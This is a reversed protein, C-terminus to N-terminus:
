ENERDYLIVEVNILFESGWLGELLHPRKGYFSVEQCSDVGWCHTLLTGMFVDVSGLIGHDFFAGQGQSM